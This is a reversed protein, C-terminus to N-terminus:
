NHFVRQKWEESGRMSPKRVNTKELWRYVTSSHINLEKAIQIGDLGKQFMLQQLLSKMDRGSEFEKERVGNKRVRITIWGDGDLFGRIFDRLFEDPVSPFSLVKSKNPIIGLKNIDNLIIKNSIRLRYSHKRKEIPYTSALTTNFQELLERNPQQYIVRKDRYNGSGFVVQSRSQCLAPCRQCHPYEQKLLDFSLM